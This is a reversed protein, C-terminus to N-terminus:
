RIFVHIIYSDANLTYIQAEGRSALSCARPDFSIQDVTGVVMNLNV